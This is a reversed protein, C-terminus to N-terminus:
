AATAASSARLGTCAAACSADSSQHLERVASGQSCMSWKTRSMEEYVVTGGGGCWSWYYLALKRFFHMAYNGFHPADM